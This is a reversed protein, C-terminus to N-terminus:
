DAFLDGVPIRFGPVVDGGDLVDAGGLVRVDAGRAHETVTRRRPDVVWVRRVGARLYENVKEALGAARNSSSIVEVALDPALRLFGDPLGDAPIRERAVFSVDPGRVTATGPFLVYGSEVLVAGLGGVRVHAHLAAAVNLQVQGHRGGPRSERVLSGQVLEGHYRDEDPLRAYEGIIRAPDATRQSEM